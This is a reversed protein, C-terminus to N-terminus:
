KPRETDDQRGDNLLQSLTIDPPGNVRQVILLTTYVEGVSSTPVRGALGIEEGSQVEVVAGTLVTADLGSQFAVIVQAPANAVYHRTYDSTEWGYILRLM